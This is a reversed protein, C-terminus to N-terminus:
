DLLWTKNAFDDSKKSEDPSNRGIKREIPKYTHITISEKGKKLANNEEILKSNAEALKLAEKKTQELEAKLSKVQESDKRFKAVLSKQEGLEAQLDIVQQQLSGEHQHAIELEKTQVLAAKLEAITAELEAKTPSSDQEVNQEVKDTSSETVAPPEEEVVVKATTDITTKDENEPLKQAEQRLLDSIRKRTAM